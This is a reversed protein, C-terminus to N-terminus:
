ENWKELIEKIIDGHCSLPACWCVLTLYGDRQWIEYLRKLESIIIGRERKFESSAVGKVYSELYARLRIAYLEIVEDRTGDRGVKFPNNLPSGKVGKYGRGIYEGTAGTKKNAVIIM